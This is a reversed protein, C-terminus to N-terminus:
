SKHVIHTGFSLTASVYSYMRRNTSTLRMSAILEQHPGSWFAAWHDVCEWFGQNNEVDMSATDNTDNLCFCSTKPVLCAKAAGCYVAVSINLNMYGFWSDVSVEDGGDDITTKSTDRM